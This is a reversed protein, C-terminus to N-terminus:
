GGLIERYGERFNPYRFSFGLSKLKQNRYRKGPVSVPKLLDEPCVIGLEKSLWGYFDRSLVPEDDCGLYVEGAKGQNFLYPMAGAIDDRHIMNLYQITRGAPCNGSRLAEVRNRGSGYIGALRFILSPFGSDLVQREAELLIKGRKTKPNPIVTEDLWGEFGDEWVGTSSLYIILSPRPKSARSKLFNGIGKLYVAEYDSDERREPAASIVVFHAPPLNELSSPDSIDCVFPQAGTEAVAEASEPTRVAAFVKQKRKVFEAAIAKGTYGAGLILIHYM